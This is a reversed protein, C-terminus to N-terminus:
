SLSPLSLSKLNPTPGKASREIDQDNSQKSTNLHRENHSVMQAQQLDIRARFRMTKNGTRRYKNEKKKLIRIMVQTRLKVMRPLKEPKM